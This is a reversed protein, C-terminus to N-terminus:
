ALSRIVEKIDIDVPCSDLCRGCGVCGSDGFKEKDWVLKCFYRNRTRQIKEPKPTHGGAMRWYGSFICSDLLRQRVVGGQNELDVVNFCACTPCTYNCAGCSICRNSIDKLLEENLPERGMTELAQDKKIFDKRPLREAGQKIKEWAAIENQGVPEFLGPSLSVIKEGKSSGVEVMFRGNGLDTLQLDFGKTAFPGHGMSACFCNKNPPTVCAITILTLKERARNYYFDPFERQGYFVDNYLIGELDCTPLGFIVTESFDDLTAVTTKGASKQYRLMKKVQGFLVERVAPMVPKFHKLQVNCADKVQALSTDGYENTQPAFLNVEDKLKDLLKIIGENTMQCKDNTM